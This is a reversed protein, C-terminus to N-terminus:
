IQLSMQKWHTLAQRPHWFEGAWPLRLLSLLSLAQLPIGLNAIQHPIYLQLLCFCVALLTEQTYPHHSPARHTGATGRSVARHASGVGSFGGSLCLHLPLQYEFWVSCDTIVWQLHFSHLSVSKVGCKSEIGALFCLWFETLVRNKETKIGQSLIQPFLM